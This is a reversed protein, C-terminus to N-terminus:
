VGFHQRIHYNPAKIGNEWVNRKNGSTGSKPDALFAPMFIMLKNM